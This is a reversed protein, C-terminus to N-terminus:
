MYIGYHGGGILAGKFLHGDLVHSYRIPSAGQILALGRFLAWGQM